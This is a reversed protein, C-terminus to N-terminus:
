TTVLESVVVLPCKLNVWLKSIVKKSKNCNMDLGDSSEVVVFLIDTRKSTYDMVEEKVCGEVNIFLSDVGKSRLESQFNVIQKKEYIDSHLIELDAGIRLCTNIAYKFANEASKDGTLALLVKRSEHMIERATEFEGAEAFTAAAMADNIKKM